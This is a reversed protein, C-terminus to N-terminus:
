TCKKQLSKHFQLVENLLFRPVATPSVTVPSGCQYGKFYVQKEAPLLHYNTCLWHNQSAICHEADIQMAESESINIFTALGVIKGYWTNFDQACYGKQVLKLIHKRSLRTKSVHIAIITNSKNHKLQFKRNEVLKVGHLLLIAWILHLSIM